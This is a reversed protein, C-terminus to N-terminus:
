SEFRLETTVCIQRLTCLYLLEPRSLAGELVGESKEAWALEGSGGGELEFKRCVRGAERAISLEGSGLSVRGWTPSYLSRFFMVPFVSFALSELM